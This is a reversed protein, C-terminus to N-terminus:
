SDDEWPCYAGPHTRIFRANRLLERAYAFDRQARWYPIANLTAFLMQRSAYPRM